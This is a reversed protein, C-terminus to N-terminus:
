VLEKRYEDRYRQYYNPMRRLLERQYKSDCSKCSYRLGDKNTNHKSFESKSKTQKCDYCSKM